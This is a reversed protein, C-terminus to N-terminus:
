SVNAESAHTLEVILLRKTARTMAVYLDHAGATRNARIATPDVLIATDFELGRVEAAAVVTATGSLEGQLAGVHETQCIVGILESPHDDHAQGVLGAITDIMETASVTVVRPVDGHRISHSLAQEPAIEALLPASERLIERTTRYNVTLTHLELREAVFPRLADAWSRITTVSGTQALDGVVTMSRAPCRRMLMRWEMETLEQAEDVVIHGFLREPPGVILERAEDLLALDATSLDSTSREALQRIENMTATPWLEILTAQDTLFQQLMTLPDLRPWIQDIITDLGPDDILSSRIVERDFEPQGEVTPADDFGLRRLDAATARDLDIGLVSAVEADIADLTEAARQEMMDVLDDVVYETFHERAPNHAYADQLAARRTRDIVSADLTLTDHGITVTLPVGHPQHGRVWAALATALNARGKKAAVAPTDVCNPMAAVLDASTALDVHNEGLSPLVDGIYDLFRHNPGYVLVGREAVRPFAYLVYAARHLAVITKGTGPGGQVVTVGRHGSRVIADQESQLTSVAERMRGTRAQRLAEALPGDGIVDGDAATSGDLLEDSVGVVARGELRLHRRRRLGQPSLATAAYFPRAAEARWDMLLLEGTEDRLGIRGIYMSEGTAKDIRGFCLAQEAARRESITRTLRGVEADRTFLDQPSEIKVALARRHADRAESLEHDLRRYMADVASRELSVQRMAPGDNM